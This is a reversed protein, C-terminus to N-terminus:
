PWTGGNEVIEAELRAQIFAIDIYPSVDPSPTGLIIRSEGMYLLDKLVRAFETKETSAQFRAVLGNLQTEQAATMNYAAVTDAVTAKGRKVENLVGMFPHIAIKSDTLTLSEEPTIDGTLRQVLDAM